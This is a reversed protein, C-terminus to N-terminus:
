LFGLDLKAPESMMEPNWAPDWVLEVECSEVDHVGAVAMEVEGPLSGAVPCAPSTLTMQIKVNNGEEVQVDYILGLEYIDVPIEPDYVTKLAETIRDELPPPGNTETADIPAEATTESM